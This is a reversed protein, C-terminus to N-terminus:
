LVYHCYQVSGAMTGAKSLQGLLGTEQRVAITQMGVKTSEREERELWM